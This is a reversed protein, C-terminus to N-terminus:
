STELSPSISTDYGTLDIVELNDSDLIDNM